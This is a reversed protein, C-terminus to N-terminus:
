RFIGTYKSLRKKLTRVNKRFLNEWESIEDINNMTKRSKLSQFLEELVEHIERPAEGDTFYIDLTLSFNRINTPAHNFDKFSVVESLFILFEEIKKSFDKKREYKHSITPMITAYFCLNVILVMISVVAPIWISLEINSM